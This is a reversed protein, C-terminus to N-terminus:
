LTDYLAFTTGTRKEMDFSIQELRCMHFFTKYQLTSLGPHHLYNMFIFGRPEKVMELQDFMEASKHTQSMNDGSKLSQKSSRMSGMTANMQQAKEIADYDRQMVIYDGTFPDLYGEVLLDFFQSIVTFDTMSHDIDIARFEVERHRGLYSLLDVSIFGMLGMKYMENGLKDIIDMICKKPISRQPSFCGANVMPTAEIKDYTGILQVCGDPELLFSIGTTMIKSTPVEPQAEIVGGVECFHKIFNPWDFFLSPMAVFAKKPLSKKLVTVLKNKIGETLPVNQKRLQQVPKLLTIDISASGRGNFEDNVKFIWTDINFNNCILEALTTYFLEEDGKILNSGIPIPINAKMLIDRAGTKTCLEGSLSPDGGLLPVSLKMSLKLDNKNTRGPVIYCQRDEIIKKISKM